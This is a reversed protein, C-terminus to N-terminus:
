KGRATFSGTKHPITSDLYANPIKQSSEEDSSVNRMSRLPLQFPSDPSPSSETCRFM